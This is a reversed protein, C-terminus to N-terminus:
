RSIVKQFLRSNKVFTKVRDIAPIQSLRFIRWAEKDSPMKGKQIYQNFVTMLGREKEAPLHLVVVRNNKYCTSVLRFGAGTWFRFVYAGANRICSRMEEAALSIIFEDGRTTVFSDKIMKSYISEANKIFVAADAHRAAFFEGGYHTVIRKEGLFKSTEELFIQYDRVNLGHNIDYMLVHQACEEWVARFSDQVFVDADMYCYMDYEAELMYSLACLKYFALSWPYDNEFRFRDFPAYIIKVSESDLITTFQEPIDELPINTVLAVACEPNHRKASVLGACVNSLYMDLRASPKAKINVGSSMVENHAFPIFIIASRNKLPEASQFKSM